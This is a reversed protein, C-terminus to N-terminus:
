GPLGPRHMKEAAPPIGKKRRVLPIRVGRFRGSWIRNALLLLLVALAIGAYILRMSQVRLTPPKQVADQLFAVLHVIEEDTFRDSGVVKSMMPFNPNQLINVVEPLTFRTMVQTLDPGLTGGGLIGLGSVTHCSICYPAGSEFALAGSFHGKGLPIDAPTPERSLRAGAPVFVTNSETLAEIFSLLQTLEADSLDQDPMIEPAYKTFLESAIADGKNKMGAPSIIFARLWEEARRGTIGKLDPGKKDGQGITHCSYCKKEFLLAAGSATEGAGGPVAGTQEPAAAVNNVQASTKGVPLIVLAALVPLIRLGKSHYM